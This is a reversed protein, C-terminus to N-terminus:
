TSADPNAFLNLLLGAIGGASQRRRRCLQLNHIHTRSANKGPQTNDEKQGNWIPEQGWREGQPLWIALSALPYYCPLPHICMDNLYKIHMRHCSQHHHNTCIKRANVHPDGLINTELNQDTVAQLFSKAFKGGLSEMVKNWVRNVQLIDAKKSQLALDLDRSISMAEWRSTRQTGKNHISFPDFLTKTTDRCGNGM